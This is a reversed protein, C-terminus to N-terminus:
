SSTFYKVLFIFLHYNAIFFYNLGKRNTLLPLFYGFGLHPQMNFMKTVWGVFADLCRGVAM